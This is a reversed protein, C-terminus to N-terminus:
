AFRNGSLGRTAKIQSEALNVGSASHEVLQRISSNLQILQDHLDKTTPEADNLNIAQPKEDSKETEYEGLNTDFGQMADTIPVSTTPKEVINGRQIGSEFNLDDDQVSKQTTSGNGNVSSISTSVNDFVKKINPDPMGISVKNSFNGIDIGFKALQKDIISDTKNSVPAVVKKINPDPM